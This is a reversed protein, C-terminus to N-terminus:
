NASGLERRVWDYYELEEVQQKALTAEQGLGIELIYRLSIPYDKTTPNTPPVWEPFAEMKDETTWQNKHGWQDWIDNIVQVEYNSLVDKFQPPSELYISGSPELKIEWHQPRLNKHKFHPPIWQGRLFQIHDLLEIGMQTNYFIGGTLRSTAEGLVKREALTLLRSAQTISLEKFPAKLLFRAIVDYLKEADFIRPRKYNDM